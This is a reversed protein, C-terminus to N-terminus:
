FPWESGKDNERKFIIEAHKLKNKLRKVIVQLKIIKKVLKDHDLETLKMAIVLKLKIPTYLFIVIVANPTLYFICQVCFHM